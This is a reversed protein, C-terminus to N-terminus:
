SNAMNYIFIYTYVDPWVPCDIGDGMDNNLVIQTAPSYSYLDILIREM